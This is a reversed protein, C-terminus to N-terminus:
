GTSQYGVQKLQFQNCFLFGMSWKWAHLNCEPIKKACFKASKLQSDSDEQLVHDTPLSHSVPYALFIMFM